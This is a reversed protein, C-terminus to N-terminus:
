LQRLAQANAGRATMGAPSRSNGTGKGRLYSRGKVGAVAVRSRVTTGYSEIGRETVSKTLRQFIAERLSREPEWDWKMSRQSM